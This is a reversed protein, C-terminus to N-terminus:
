YTDESLDLDRRMEEVESRLTKYLEIEGGAYGSTITMGVGEGVVHVMVRQSPRDAHYVIATEDEGLGDGENEGEDAGGWGSVDDGGDGEADDEVLEVKVDDHLAIRKAFSSRVPMWDGEGWEVDDAGDGQMGENNEATEVWDEEEEEVGWEELYVMGEEKNIVLRCSQGTNVARQQALKMLSYIREAVSRTRAKELTGGLRVVTMGVMVGILSLVVLIEILTFGMGGRNGWFIGGMHKKGTPSIRM